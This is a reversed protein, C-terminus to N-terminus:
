MHDRQEGSIVFTISNTCGILWEAPLLVSAFTSGDKNEVEYHAPSDKKTGGAFGVLVDYDARPFFKQQVLTACGEEKKGTVIKWLAGVVAARSADSM